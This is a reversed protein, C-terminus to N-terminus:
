TLWPPYPIEPLLKASKGAALWHSRMWAQHWERARRGVMRRMLQARGRTMGAPSDHHAHHEARGRKGLMV